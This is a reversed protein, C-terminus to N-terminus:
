VARSGTLAAIERRNVRGLEPLDSLLAASRVRGIGPVSTLIEYKEWRPSNRVARDIDDEARKIRKRLYDIHSHLDKPLAQPAHARRNQEMVVMEILQERSAWLARRAQNQADCLERIPPEIREGYRALMRADLHDTKALRGISRAFERARRPNIIV